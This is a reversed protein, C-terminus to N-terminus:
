ASPAPPARSAACRPLAEVVFLLVWLGAAPALQYILRHSSHKLQVEVQWPTVLYVSMYGLLTLVLGLTFVLRGGESASWPRLVLLAFFLLLLCRAPGGPTAIQTAFSKVTPLVNDAANQFSFGLFRAEEEDLGAADAGHEGEELLYSVLGFHKNFWILYLISLLVPAAWALARLRDRGEPLRVKRALGAALLALGFALAIVLGEGKSWVVLPAMCGLMHVWVLEGDEQYRQWLDWFALLSIAILADSFAQYTFFRGLTGICVLFAAAVLPRARRRLASAAVLIGALGFVQMPLRSEVHVIEGAHVHVWLQLLPNLPPYDPHSIVQHNEMAELFDPGFGGTHFLVKAKAAWIRAEDSSVLPDSSALLIRDVTTVLLFALAAAFCLREWAPAEGPARPEKVPVRRGLVLGAGACALLAPSLWTASLPLRLWLALTLVVGLLLCGQLWSWGLYAVPDTRPAVGLLRLLAAGLLVPVLLVSLVELVSLTM